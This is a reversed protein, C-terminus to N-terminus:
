FSYSVGALPVATARLGSNNLKITVNGTILFNNGPNAKFGLALNEVPYSGNEQVITTFTHPANNVQTTVTQPTSVQPANFFVQGLFDATATVGKTVGMDAGASYGFFGPLLDQHGSENTALLSHSNWQYAVNLHPTIRGRHSIVAYPKLGYAGSGLFNKADSTPFRVEGGVALDFKERRLVTDKASLVVDGVGSAVGPIFESFSATADSITSYETGQSSVGMSVRALPVAISADLHDTIGLTGSAVYQNITASVRTNPNTVVQPNQVSPFYFLISLDNLNNGDLRTFNFRQYTFSFYAKLRGITEARETLVPGFSLQSQAYVGKSQDLTFLFGSARSPLPLQAIQTGFASNFFNFTASTTHLVTPILCILETNGCTAQGRALVPFSLCISLCAALARIRM